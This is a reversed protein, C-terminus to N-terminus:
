KMVEEIVKGVSGSPMQIHLLAAVTAAIDTMYTEKNSKGKKVGWGYWLLPIHTDYPYWSGHTTGTAGGAIYGPKMIYMVDGSRSPYYGNALMERLTKHLTTNLIDATAFADTVVENKKLYQIVWKKVAQEDVNLSDIKRHNLYVQDNMMSVVINDVAFKEKLRTNMEKMM